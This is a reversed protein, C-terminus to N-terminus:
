EAPDLTDLLSTPLSDILVVRVPTGALLTQFHTDNTLLETVSHALAIGCIYMDSKLCDKGISSTPITKTLKRSLRAAERAAMGNFELLHFDAFTPEYEREEAETMKPYSLFESLGISPICVATDKEDALELYGQVKRGRVRDDAEDARSSDTKSLYILSCADLLLLSM